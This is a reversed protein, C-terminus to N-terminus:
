QIKICQLLKVDIISLDAQDIISAAMNIFAVSRSAVTTESTSLGV